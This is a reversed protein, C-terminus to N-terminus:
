CHDVLRSVGVFGNMGCRWDVIRVRGDPATESPAPSPRAALECTYDLTGSQGTDDAMLWPWYAMVAEAIAIQTGAEEGLRTVM